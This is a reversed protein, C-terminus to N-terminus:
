AISTIRCVISNKPESLLISTLCDITMQGGDYTLVVIRIRPETTM